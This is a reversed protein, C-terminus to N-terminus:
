IAINQNFWQKRQMVSTASHICFVFPFYDPLGSMSQSPRAFFHALDSSYHPIILFLSSYQRINVFISSYQRINPFLSSNQRIWPIISNEFFM